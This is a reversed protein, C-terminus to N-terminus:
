MCSYPTVCSSRASNATSIRALAKVWGPACNWSGIVTASTIAEFGTAIGSLSSSQQGTDSPPAFEAGLNRNGLGLARGTERDRVHAIGRDIVTEGDRKRHQQFIEAKGRAALRRRPDPCPMKATVAGHREVGM